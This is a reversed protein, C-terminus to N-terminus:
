DVSKYLREDYLAGSVATLGSHLREDYPAAQVAKLRDRFQATHAAKGHAEFAKQDAWTALLLFRTPRGLEQVLEIRLNRADKATVDRYQRMLSGGETVSTPLVEVYTAVYVPGDIAVTQPHTSVAILAMLMLIGTLCRHM